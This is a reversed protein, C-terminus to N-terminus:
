RKTHIVTMIRVNPIREKLLDRPWLISDKTWTGTSSGGLGHVFVIDAVITGVGECLVTIGTSSMTTDTLVIPSHAVM